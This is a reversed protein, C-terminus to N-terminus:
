SIGEEAAARYVLRRTSAALGEKLRRGLTRAVFWGTLGQIEVGHSVQVGRESPELALRFTIRSGLSRAQCVLTRELQCEEVTFPLREGSRFRMLGKRGKTPM